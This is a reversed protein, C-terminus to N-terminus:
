FCPCANILGRGYYKFPVLLQYKVNQTFRHRCLGCIIILQLIVQNHLCRIEMARSFVYASLNSVSDPLGIKALAGVPSLKTLPVLLFLFARGGKRHHVPHRSFSLSRSMELRLVRWIVVSGPFLFLQWGAIHVKRSITPQNSRPGSRWCRRFM